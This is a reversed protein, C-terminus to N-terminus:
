NTVRIDVLNTVERNNALTTDVRTAGVPPGGGGGVTAKGLIRRIIIGAEASTAVFASASILFTRRAFSYM